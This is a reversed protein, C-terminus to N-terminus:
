LVCVNMKALLVLKLVKEKEILCSVLELLVKVQFVKLLRQQIYRTITLAMELCRLSGM